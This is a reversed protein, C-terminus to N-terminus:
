NCRKQGGLHKDECKDGEINKDISIVLIGDIWERKMDEEELRGIEM